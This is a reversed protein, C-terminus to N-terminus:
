STSGSTLSGSTLIWLTLLDDDDDEWDLLELDDLLEDDEDDPADDFLSAECWWKKSYIQIRLLINM